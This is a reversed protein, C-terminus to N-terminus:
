KRDEIYPDIKSSIFKDIAIRYQINKLKTKSHRTNQLNINIDNKPYLQQNKAFELLVNYQEKELEEVTIISERGRTIYKM